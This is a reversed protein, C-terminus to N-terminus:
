PEDKCVIAQIERYRELEKDTILEPALDLSIRAKDNFSGNTAYLDIWVYLMCDDDSYFASKKEKTHKWTRHGTKEWAGATINDSLLGKLEVLTMMVPKWGHPKETKQYTIVIVGDDKIIEMKWGGGGGKAVLMANRFGANYRACTEALRKGVQACAISPVLFLLLITKM